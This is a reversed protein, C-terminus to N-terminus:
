NNARRKFTTSYPNLMKRYANRVNDLGIGLESIQEDDYNNPNVWYEAKLDCISALEEDFHRMPIAAASWYKVLLAERDPNRESNNNLDRYYLFTEDLANSIARLSSDKLERRDKSLTAIPGLIKILGSIIDNIM